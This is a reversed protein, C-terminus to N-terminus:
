IAIKKEYNMISKLKVHRFIIVIKSTVNRIQIISMNVDIIHIFVDSEVDFNFFTKSYFMYDGKKLLFSNNRIQISVNIISMSSLLVIQKNKIIQKVHKDVNFVDIFIFFKLYNFLIFKRQSIDIIIKEVIQININILM